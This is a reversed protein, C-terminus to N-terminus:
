NRPDFDARLPSHDSGTVEHAVYASKAVYRSAGNQTVFVHDLAQARGAKAFTAQDPIPLDQAVRVLAGDNELATIPASGPEDNLDGALVVLATADEASAATMIERTRVAEAYRRGPDDDVKSRFHAAFLIVRRDGITVRAELLERSFTTTTGDPRTLIDDRHRRIESAPGRAFIAVDMSAPAGTEGLEATVYGLGLDALRVRLPAFVAEDEVEELALVDADLKAIGAALEVIRADLDAQTSAEEFAGPSCDGSDCVTDFLRHVNFTAVRVAGRGAPGSDAAPGDIGADGAPATARPQEGVADTCSAALITLALAFMRPRHVM